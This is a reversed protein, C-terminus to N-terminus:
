IDEEFGINAGEKLEKYKALYWDSKAMDEEPKGKFPARKRYKWANLLCFYMIALKGFVLQMEDICEMGGQTYHSPHNVPDENPTIGIQAMIEDCEIETLDTHNGRHCWSDAHDFPCGGCADNEYGEGWREDCWADIREQKQELTM